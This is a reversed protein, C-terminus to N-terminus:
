ALGSALELGPRQRPHGDPNLDLKAAAFRRTMEDLDPPTTAFTAAGDEVERAYLATIAPLDSM